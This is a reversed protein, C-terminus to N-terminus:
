LSLDLISMSQFRQRINLNTGSVKSCGLEVLLRDAVFKIYQAMASANMGILSCPLADTLFEIEINVADRLIEEIREASPKHV